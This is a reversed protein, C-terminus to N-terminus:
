VDLPGRAKAIAARAKLVIGNPKHEGITSAYCIISEMFPEMEELAELLDPAASILRLDSMMQEYDNQDLDIATLFCDLKFSPGHVVAHGPYTAGVVLEWTSASSDKSRVGEYVNGDGYCNSEDRM